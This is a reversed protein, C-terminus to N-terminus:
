QPQRHKALLVEAMVPRWLLPDVWANCMAINDKAAVGNLTGTGLVDRVCSSAQLIVAHLRGGFRNFVDNMYFIGIIIHYPPTCM